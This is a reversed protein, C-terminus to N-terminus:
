QKTPIEEQRVLNLWKDHHMMIKNPISHMNKLWISKKVGPWKLKSVPSLNSQLCQFPGTQKRKQILMYKKSNHLTKAANYKYKNTRTRTYIYIYSACTFLAYFFSFDLLIRLYATQQQYAESSHVSHKGSPGDVYSQLRSSHQLYCWDARERHIYIYICTHTYTHRFVTSHLTVTESRYYIKVPHIQWSQLCDIKCEFDNNKQIPQWDFRTLRFEGAILAQRASTFSIHEYKELPIQSFTFEVTEVLLQIQCTLGM